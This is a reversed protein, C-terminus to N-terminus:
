DLVALGFRVLRAPDAIVDLVVVEGCSVTFGVVVAPNAAVTVVM